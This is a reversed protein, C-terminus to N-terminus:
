RSRVESLEGEDLEETEQRGQRQVRNEELRSGKAKAFQPKLDEVRDEEEADDDEGALRDRRGIM